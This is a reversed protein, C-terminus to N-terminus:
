RTEVTMPFRLLWDGDIAIATVLKRRRIHRYGIRRPDRDLEHVLTTTFLLLVDCLAGRTMDVDGFSCRKSSQLGVDRDCTASLTVVLISESLIQIGLKDRDIFVSVERTDVTVRRVDTTEIRRGAM